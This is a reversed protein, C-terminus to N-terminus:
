VVRTDGIHGESRNERQEGVGWSAVVSPRLLCLKARGSAPDQGEQLECDAEKPARARPIALGELYSPRIRQMETPTSLTKAELQQATGRKSKMRILM